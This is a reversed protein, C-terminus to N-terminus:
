GSVWRVLEVGAIGQCHRAADRFNLRLFWACDNIPDLFNAATVSPGAPYCRLLDAIGTVLARGDQPATQCTIQVIDNKLSQALFWGAAIGRGFLKRFIDLTIQVAEGDQRAGVGKTIAGAFEYLPVFRAHPGGGHNKYGQHRPQEKRNAF